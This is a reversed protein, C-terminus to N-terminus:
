RRLARTRRPPRVAAGIRGTRRYRCASQAGTQRGTGEAASPWRWKRADAADFERDIMAPLRFNCWSGLLAMVLAALLVAAVILSWNGLEWRLIGSASAVIVVVSAVVTTGLAILVAQQSRPIPAFYALRFLRPAPSISGRMCWLMHVLSWGLCLAVLVGFEIPLHGLPRADGAIDFWLNEFQWFPSLLSVDTVQPTSCNQGCDSLTYPNLVAVPWFQRHGIVTLWTAPRQDADLNRGSRAWAPPTYDAAWLATGAPSQDPILERAALYMGQANDEGFIRYNGGSGTQAPPILKRWWKLEPYRTSTWDQQWTMLPYTSLIMVGRLSSGEEGRRFLLDSGDLVVRIEPVTRRLFRALFIQDLSNTSRVVVFQAKRDELVDTIDLLVSEQALPTLQGGYNRVTDHKSNAPESLDGRLTTTANNSNAGQKTSNFISQEEYASRLTAIDRPYYLKTSAQLCNQPDTGPETGPNAGGFATEDESLIAIRDTPYGQSHVYRCFREIQTSDGEMATRFKSGRFEAALRENFWAHSATSSVSGSFVTFTPKGSVFKPTTFQLSRLLSVLSGSFNPGLIKIEPDPSLGGIQRMWAMANAFEEEQIGGTPLESVLFVVLGGEGGADPIRGYPNRFVLVGPQKEQEDQLGEETLEDSLGSYEKPENWPLWSSEYEYGNDQAAQQIIEVIRDFSFPLHTSIPNPVTAILFQLTRDGKREVPKPAAQYCSEPLTWGLQALTDDGLVNGNVLPRLRSLIEECGDSPKGSAPPKPKPSTKPKDATASSASGGPSSKPLNSLGFFALVVAVATFIGANKRM